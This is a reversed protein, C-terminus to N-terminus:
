TPQTRAVFALVQQAYLQPYHEHINHGCRPFIALEGRPLAHYFDVGQEVPFLGGRDPYMVLAPCFVRGLAPRLDFVGRGYSGGYTTAMAYFLPGREPGHWRLYKAQLHSDLQDFPHPFKIRNFEEMTIGSHCFTSATTLGLVQGPHSGAYDVAVVGGECQGVLYARELGLHELLAALAEVSARRFGPSLYYDAFDAGGDSRGYGRRDYLLVQYGARVLIPWIEEWMMACSFGNHLLVLAPGQGHIEYYTDLGHIPLLPM